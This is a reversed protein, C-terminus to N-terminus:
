SILNLVNNKVVEIISKSATESVIGSTTMEIATGIFQRYWKKKGLYYLEKLEEIDKAIQDYIIQQGDKLTQIEELIKDLKSDAELKDRPTFTDDNIVIGLKKLENGLFYSISEHSFNTPCHEENKCVLKHKNYETQNGDLVINLYKIKDSQDDIEYLKNKVDNILEKYESTGGSINYKVFDEAMKKIIDM